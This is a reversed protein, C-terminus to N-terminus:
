ANKPKTTLQLKGQECLNVVVPHDAPLEATDGNMLFVEKTVGKVTYELHFPTSGTYTYKKM